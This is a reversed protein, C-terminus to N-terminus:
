DLTTYSSKGKINTAQDPVYCLSYSEGSYIRSVNAWSILHKLTLYVVPHIAHTNMDIQNM